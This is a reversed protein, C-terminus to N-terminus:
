VYRCKSLDEVVADMSSYRENVAPKICGEIVSAIGSEIALQNTIPKRKDNAIKRIIEQLDDKQEAFPNRKEVSEYALVGFSFIDTSQMPYSFADSIVEPAMYLPTGCAGGSDFLIIGKPTAFGHDILLVDLKKDIMINQPKIDRHVWGANHMMSIKIATKTLIDLNNNIDENSYIFEEMDMGDIRETVIYHLPASKGDDLILGKEVLGAEFFRTTFRHIKNLPHSSIEKHIRKEVEFMQIREEDLIYSFSDGYKMVKVIAKYCVHENEQWVAKSVHSLDTDALQRMYSIRPQYFPLILYATEFLPSEKSGRELSMLDIDIGM